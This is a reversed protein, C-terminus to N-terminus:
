STYFLEILIKNSEKWKVWGFRDNKGSKKPSDWRVKLWEGNIEVPHFTVEKPLEVTKVQGEPIERLPNGSRDFDVAFAKLIHQEWTEFKFTADDKRVFRKLGTDENVIVEYRNSDEGVCKLVLVFYDPHFAYPKFNENAYEFKSDSDDYYFSFQYWLSGDQNYIHIFKDKDYGKENLRIVGISSETNSEQIRKDQQIKQANLKIVGEAPNNVTEVSCEGCVLLVLMVGTIKM